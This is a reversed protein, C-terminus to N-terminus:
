DCTGDGVSCVAGSGALRCAFQGSCSGNRISFKGQNGGANICAEEGLCSGAGLVANDGLGASASNGNCSGPLAVDGAANIKVGNGLEVCAGTFNCSNPGIEIGEGTGAFSCFENPVPNTGLDGGCSTEHVIAPAASTSSPSVM